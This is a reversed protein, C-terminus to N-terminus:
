MCENIHMVYIKIFPKCGRGGFILCTSTETEKLFACCQFCLQPRPHCLCGQDGRQYRWALSLSLLQQLWPLLKGRPRWPLKWPSPVWADAEEWPRVRPGPGHAFASGRPARLHPRPQPAGLSPTPPCHRRTSCVLTTEFSERCDPSARLLTIICVSLVASLWVQRIVRSQCM